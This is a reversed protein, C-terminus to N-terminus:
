PRLYHKAGRGRVTYRTIHLAKWFFLNNTYMKLSKGMHMKGLQNQPTRLAFNPIMPFNGISM